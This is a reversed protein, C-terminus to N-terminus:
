SKSRLNPSDPLADSKGDLVVAERHHFLHSQYSFEQALMDVRKNFIAEKHALEEKKLMQGTKHPVGVLSTLAYMKCVDYRLPLPEEKKPHKFAFICEYGDGDVVAPDNHGFQRELVWLNSLYNYKEVRQTGITTRLFIDGHFESYEGSRVETLEPTVYVLRFTPCTSGEYYGFDRILYKNILDAEARERM